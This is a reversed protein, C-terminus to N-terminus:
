RPVGPRAADIAAQMDPARLAEVERELSDDTSMSACGALLCLFALALLKM